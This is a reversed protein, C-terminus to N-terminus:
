ESGTFAAATARNIREVVEEHMLLLYFYEVDDFCLRCFVSGAGACSVRPYERERLRGCIHLCCVAAVAAEHSVTKEEKVVKGHWWLRKDVGVFLRVFRQTCQAAFCRTEGLPLLRRGGGGVGGPLTTEGVSLRCVASSPVSSFTVIQIYYLITQ